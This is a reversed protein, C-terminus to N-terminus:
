IRGPRCAPIPMTPTLLLDYRQHFAAMTRGLANRVLDARVWEAASIQEGAAATESLGPDVLGKREDPYAQLLAAVGAAWM